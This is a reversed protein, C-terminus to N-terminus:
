LACEEVLIDNSDAAKERAQRHSRLDRQLRGARCTASWARWNRGDTCREEPHAGGGEANGNIKM